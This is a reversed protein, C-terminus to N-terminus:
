GNPLKSRPQPSLGCHLQQNAHLDVDVLSELELNEYKKNLCLQLM